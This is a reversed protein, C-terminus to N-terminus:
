DIILPPPEKQGGGYISIFYYFLCAWRWGMHARCRAWGRRRRIGGGPDAVVVLSAPDAALSAAPDAVQSAPDAVPLDSSGGGYLDFSSPPAGSLDSSCGPPHIRWLESRLLESHGEGAGTIRVPAAQKQAGRALSSARSQLAGRRQWPRLRRQAAQSPARGPLSISLLM